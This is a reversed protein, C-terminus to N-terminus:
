EYVEVRVNSWDSLDDVTADVITKSALGKVPNEDSFNFDGAGSMRQTLAWLVDDSCRIDTDENLLVFLKVLPVNFLDRVVDDKSFGDAVVLLCLKGAAFRPLRYDLIHASQNKLQELEHRAKLSVLAVHECSVGGLISHYVFEKREWLEDVVCIPNSHTSYMGTLEGFPGEHRYEPLVKGFLIVETSMPVPLGHEFFRLSEGGLAQAVQLEDIEDSFSLAGLLMIETPSGILIAVDLPNGRGVTKAVMEKIRPTQPNFLVVNSDQVSLRVFCLHHKGSDPNRALVVGSTIYPTSDHHSHIIPPLHEMLAPNSSRGYEHQDPTIVKLSRPNAVAHDIKDFIASTETVEFSQNIREQSGFLNGVMKGRCGSINEFLVARNERKEEAVIHGPFERCDIRDSVVKIEDDDQFKKLFLRFEM